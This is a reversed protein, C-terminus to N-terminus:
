TVDLFSMLFQGSDVGYQARFQDITAEAALPKVMFVNWDQRAAQFGARVFPATVGPRDVRVSVYLANQERVVAAVAAVPDVQDLLALNDIRLVSKPQAGLAYGVPKDAQWLLWLTQTKFVGQEDLAPFFPLHRRAFGLSDAAVQEFLRDALPLHASGAREARLETQAGIVARPAMVSSASVVDEYGLKRYLSYAVRNRQTGLTSFRLGASRMRAHAEELLRSAIGQRACAPHTSVAWVGGVEQAGERAVVPLRFVGVQGAVRGDQKAYVGLFAFPRPDLRRMCAALEPTLAFDLCLLNLHLVELPDVEDYEYVRMTM